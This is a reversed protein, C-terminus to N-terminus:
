IAVNCDDKSCASNSLTFSESSTVSNLLYSLESLTPLKTNNCIM